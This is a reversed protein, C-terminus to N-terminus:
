NTTALDHRHDGAPRRADVEADTPVLTEDLGDKEDGSVDDEFYGQGSYYFFVRDGAKTGDILWDASRISSRRARDGRRQELIRIDADDYGLANTRSCPSSRTSM